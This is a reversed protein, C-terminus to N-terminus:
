DRTYGCGAVGVGVDVGAGVDVGVGVGMGVVKVVRCCRCCCRHSGVCRFHVPLWPCCSRRTCYQMTRVLPQHQPTWARVRRRLRRSPLPPTAAEVLPGTKPSRTASWSHLRPRTAGGLLRSLLVACTCARVSLSLYAFLCPAWSACLFVISVLM